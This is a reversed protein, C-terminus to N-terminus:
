LDCHRVIDLDPSGGFSDTVKFRFILNPCQTKRGLFLPSDCSGAGTALDFGASEGARIEITSQGSVTVEQQSSLIGDGIAEMGLAVQRGPWNPHTTVSTGARVPGITVFRSESARNTFSLFTLSCHNIDIEDFRVRQLEWRSKVTISEVVVWSGGLFCAAGLVLLIGLPIKRTREWERTRRPKIGGHRLYARHWKWAFDADKWFKLTAAVIIAGFLLFFVGFPLLVSATNNNIM